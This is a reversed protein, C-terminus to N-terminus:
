TLSLHPLDADYDVITCARSLCLSLCVSHSFSLSLSLSVSRSLCLSLRRSHLGAYGVVLHHPSASRPMTPPRSPRPSAPAARPSCRRPRSAWPACRALALAPCPLQLACPRKSPRQWIYVTAAPSSPLTSAPPARVASAPLMAALRPRCRVRPYPGCRRNPSSGRRCGGLIDAGGTCRGWTRARGGAM